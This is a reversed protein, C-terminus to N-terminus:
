SGVRGGYRLCRLGGVDQCILSLIRYLSAFSPPFTAFSTSVGFLDTWFCDVWGKVLLDLGRVLFCLGRAQSSDCFIMGVTRYRGEM